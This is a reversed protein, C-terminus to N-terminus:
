GGQRGATPQRGARKARDFQHRALWELRGVAEGAEIGAFVALRPDLEQAPLPLPQPARGTGPWQALRDRRQRRSRPALRVGQRPGDAKPWHLPVDRDCAPIGLFRGPRESVALATM